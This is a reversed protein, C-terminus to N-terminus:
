NINVKIRRKKLNVEKEASVKKPRGRKRTPLNKAVHM